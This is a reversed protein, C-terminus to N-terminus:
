PNSGTLPEPIEVKLKGTLHEMIRVLLYRPTPGQDWHKIIGFGCCVFRADKYELEIWPWGQTKDSVQGVIRGRDPELTIRSIAVDTISMWQESDLQKDFRRIIGNRQFVMSQSEMPLAFEGEKPALCM